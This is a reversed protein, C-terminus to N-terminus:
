VLLCISYRIYLQWFSRITGFSITILMLGTLVCSGLNLSVWFNHGTKCIHNQIGFWTNDCSGQVGVSILFSSLVVQNCLCQVTNHIAFWSPLYWLSAQEDLVVVSWFCLYCFKIVFVSYM